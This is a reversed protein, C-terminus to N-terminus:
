EKLGVMGAIKDLIGPKEKAAEEQRLEAQREEMRRGLDRLEDASFTTHIKPFMEGEEEEVHHEVAGKVAAVGADFEGSDPDLGEADRLLEKVKNHEGRAEELLEKLQKQGQEDAERYFIEEELKAHVELAFKIARFIEQKRSPQKAEDFQKFLSAVKEHDAKLLATAETGQGGRSRNERGEAAKSTQSKSGAGSGSRSSRSGSSGSTGASRSGSTRRSRTGSGGRSRGGSTRSSPSGKSSRKSAGGSSSRRARSRGAGGSAQPSRQDGRDGEGKEVTRKARQRRDATQSRGADDSESFQGQEDRRVFRKDGRPSVTTRKSAM